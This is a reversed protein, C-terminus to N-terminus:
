LSQLYAILDDIQATDLQTTHGHRDLGGGSLAFREALTRARGDHLYPARYALGALSPM